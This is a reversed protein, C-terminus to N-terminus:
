QGSEPWEPSSVDILLRVHRRLGLCMLAPGIRSLLILLSLLLSGRGHVNSSLLVKPGLHHHLRLPPIEFGQHMPRVPDFPNRVRPGWWTLRGGVRAHPFDVFSTWGLVALLGLQLRFYKGLWLNSLTCYNRPPLVLGATRPAVRRVVRRLRSRGQPFHVSWLLGHWQFVLLIHAGLASVRFVPAPCGPYYLGRVSCAFNGSRSVSPMGWQIEWQHVSRFAWWSLAGRNYSKGDIRFPHINSM